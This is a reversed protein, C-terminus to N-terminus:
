EFDLRMEVTSVQRRRLPPCKSRDLSFCRSIAAHSHDQPIEDGGRGSQCAGQSYNRLVEGVWLSDCRSTSSGDQSETETEDNSYSNNIKSPTVNINIPTNYPPRSIKPKQSFGTFLITPLCDCWVLNSVATTQCSYFYVNIKCHHKM